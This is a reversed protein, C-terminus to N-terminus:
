KRDGSRRSLAACNAECRSRRAKATTLEARASPRGFDGRRRKGTGRVAGHGGRQRSAPQNRLTLGPRHAHDVVRRHRHGGPTVMYAIGDGMDEPALVEIQQYLPDIMETRIEPKNHSGLEIAVGGPEVVGVRM